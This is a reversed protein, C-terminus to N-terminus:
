DSFIAAVVDYAAGEGTVHHLLIVPAPPPADDLVPTTIIQAAAAPVAFPRLPLFLRGLPEGPLARSASDGHDDRSMQNMSPAANRMLLLQPL